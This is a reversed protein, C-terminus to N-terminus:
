GRKRTNNGGKGPPKKSPKKMKLSMVLEMEEWKM